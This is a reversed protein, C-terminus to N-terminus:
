KAAIDNHIHHVSVSAATIIHNSTVTKDTWLKTTVKSCGHEADSIVPVKSQQTTKAATKKKDGEDGTNLM